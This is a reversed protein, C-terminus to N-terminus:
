LMLFIIIIAFVYYLFKGVIKVEIITDQLENNRYCRYTGVLAQSMSTISLINQHITESSIGSFQATINIGNRTWRYSGSADSNQLCTVFASRESRVKKVMVEGVAVVCGTSMVVLCFQSSLAM